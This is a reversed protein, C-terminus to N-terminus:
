CFYPSWEPWDEDKGATNTINRLGNGNANMVYIDRDGIIGSAFAIHQENSSWTARGDPVTNFTLRVVNSGDANMAYVEDNGDRNSVFLIKREKKTNNENAVNKKLTSNSLDNQDFDSKIEKQCAFFAIITISILAAMSKFSPVLM